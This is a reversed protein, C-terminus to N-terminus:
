ENGEIVQVLEILYVGPEFGTIGRKRVSGKQALQPPVFLEREEGEQMQLLAEQWGPIVESMSYTATEDSFFTSDFIKGDPTTSLYDVVVKDSM